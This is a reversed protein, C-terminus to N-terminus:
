LSVTVANGMQPGFYQNSARMQWISNYVTSSTKIAPATLTLSFTYPQAPYVDKGLQQGKTRWVDDRVIHVDVNNAAWHCYGYNIVAFSATFQSKARVNIPMSVQNVLADKSCTQPSFFISSNRLLGKEDNGQADFLSVFPFNWWSYMISGEQNLAHALGFTHGLEHGITGRQPDQYCATGMTLYCDNNVTGTIADLAWDGVMALGASSAPGPAPSNAGCNPICNAGAWGGAGKVFVVYSTGTSWLPYGAAILESQINGWIGDNNGCGPEHNACTYYSLPQPARYVITDAVRYVYGSNNYELAGSYWRKLWQFTATIAATNGPTETVDGAIFLLPQIYNPNAIPTPTPTPTATISPSPRAQPQVPALNTKENMQMYRIARDIDKKDFKKNSSNTNAQASVGGAPIFLAAILATVACVVTYVIAKKALRRTIM